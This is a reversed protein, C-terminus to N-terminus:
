VMNNEEVSEVIVTDILAFTNLMEIQSAAEERNFDKAEPDLDKSLEKVEASM